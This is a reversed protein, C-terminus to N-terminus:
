QSLEVRSARIRVTDAAREVTGAVNVSQGAKVPPSGAPVVAAVRVHGDRLWLLTPSDVREVDVDRAEIRRGIVGRGNSKFVDGLDTLPPGARNDIEERPDSPKRDPNHGGPTDDARDREGETGATGKAQSEAAERQPPSTGWYLLVVAVGAFFVLLPAFYAWLASRRTRRNLVSRPPNQPANPDPNRPPEAM